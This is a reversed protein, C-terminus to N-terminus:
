DTSSGSNWKGVVTGLHEVKKVDEGISTVKKKYEKMPPQENKFSNKNAHM